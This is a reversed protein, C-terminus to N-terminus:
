HVVTTPDDREWFNIDQIRFAGCQYDSTHRVTTPNDRERFNISILNFQCDKSCLLVFVIM